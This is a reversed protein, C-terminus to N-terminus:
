REPVRGVEALVEDVLDTGWVAQLMAEAVPQPILGQDRFFGYCFLLSERNPQGNPNMYPLTIERITAIDMGTGRAILDHIQARAPDGSEGNVAARYERVARLWARVFGRAVPRNDYLPIAFGLTSITFNPYIDGLGLVRQAMGQQEARTIFPEAMVGTDIAGNAIAATMEPFPLPQIDLDDLTLGVRQLGVSLACASATGKGPPTIALSLGHLDELGHWRGADLVAKRVALTQDSQGGPRYTIVDLVLKVPTLRAIANWTAPNSPMPVLDLQGTALAPIMESNSAFELYEVDLGEQTFYGREQALRFPVNTSGALLAVRVKAPAPPAAPAPAAGPAGSAVPPVGAGPVSPAPPAPASCAGLALLVAFLVPAARSGVVQM